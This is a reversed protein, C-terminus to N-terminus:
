FELINQNIIVLIYNMYQKIKCIRDKLYESFPKSWKKGELGWRINARLEDGKAQKNELQFLEDQLIEIMILVIYLHMYSLLWTKQATAYLYLISWGPYISHDCNEMLTIPTLKLLETKSLELQSLILSHIIVFIWIHLLTLSQCTFPCDYAM